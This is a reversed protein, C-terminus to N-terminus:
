IYMDDGARERLPSAARGFEQAGNGDNRGPQRGGGGNDGGWNGPQFSPQDRGASMPPAGNADARGTSAVAISPQMIAVKDVDFGLGRLSKLIADSDATLRRYAEHTQPKMEISLQDGSLRLSATVAGLEAPHLEIKLVHTAVAVSNATQAANSANSFPQAGIDSAIAGALALATRSTPSQAPAPFSQQGVVDMKGASAPPKAQDPSAAAEVARAAKSSATPRWTQPTAADAAAEEIRPLIDDKRALTDATAAAGAPKQGFDPGREKAAATARGPQPLPEPMESRDDPARNGRRAMLQSSLSTGTFDRAEVDGEAVPKGHGDDASAAFHRIDSLAMQLPLRDQFPAADSSPAPGAKDDAAKARDPNGKSNKEAAGKPAAKGETGHDTQTRAPNAVARRAPRPDGSAPEAPHKGQPKAPKEDGRVLEGFNSDEKNGSAHQRPQARAPAIGPLAQSVSTM